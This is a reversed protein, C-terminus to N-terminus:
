LSVEKKDELFHALNALVGGLIGVTLMLMIAETLLIQLILIINIVIGVIIATTIGLNSGKGYADASAILLVICASYGLIWFIIKLDFWPFLWISFVLVMAAIPYVLRKYNMWRIRFHYLLYVILGNVLSFFTIVSPDYWNLNLSIVGPNAFFLFFALLNFFFALIAMNSSYHPLNDIQDVLEIRNRNTFLYIFVIITFLTTIITSITSMGMTPDSGGNVSRIAQDIIVVWLVSATYDYRSNHNQNIQFIFKINGYVIAFGLLLLILQLELISVYSALLWVIVSFPFINIRLTYYKNPLALALMPILALSATLYEGLDEVLFSVAVYIFGRTFSLYFFLMLGLGFNRLTQPDLEMNENIKKLSIM